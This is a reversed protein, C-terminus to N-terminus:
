NKKKSFKNIKIIEKIRVGLIILGFRGLFVEFYKEFWKNWNDKLDNVMSLFIVLSFDKEKLM